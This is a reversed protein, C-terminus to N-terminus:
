ALRAKVRRTPGYRVAPTLNQPFGTASLTQQKRAADAACFPRHREGPQWCCAARIGVLSM